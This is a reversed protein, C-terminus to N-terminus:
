NITNDDTSLHIGTSRGQEYVDNFTSIMSNPSSNERYYFEAYIFEQSFLSQDASKELAYIFTCM